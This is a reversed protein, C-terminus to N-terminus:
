WVGPVLRYRVRAAYDAYGPLEAMLMREELVARVGLLAIVPLGCLVGYRSGLLLPAGLILPLAGAYMPHRVYAYLGTSIVKHAREKQIKVVPAAFTNERMVIHFISLGAAVGLAGLVKLWLPVQSAHYRVADLASVVYQAYWLAFFVLLLVKDWGKQDRQIPSAMRERLLEPDRRATVLGSALGIVGLEALLVWAEPWRVTGASGFLLLGTAALWFVTGRVMRRILESNGHM